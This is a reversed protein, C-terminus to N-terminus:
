SFDWTPEKPVPFQLEASPKTGHAPPETHGWRFSEWAWYCKVLLWIQPMIGNFFMTNWYFLYVICLIATKIFRWSIHASSRKANSIYGYTQLTNLTSHRDTFEISTERLERKTVCSNQEHRGNQKQARETQTNSKPKRVRECNHGLFVAAWEAGMVPTRPRSPLPLTIYKCQQYNSDLNQRSFDKHLSVSLSLSLYSGATNGPTYLHRLNYIDDAKM